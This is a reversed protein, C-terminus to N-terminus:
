KVGGGELRLVPKELALIVVRGEVNLVQTRNALEALGASESPGFAYPIAHFPEADLWTIRM